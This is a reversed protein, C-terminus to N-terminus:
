EDSEPHSSCHKKRFLGTHRGTKDGSRWRMFLAGALFACFVIMRMVYQDTSVAPGHISYVCLALVTSMWCFLEVIEPRLIIRDVESCDDSEAASSPELGM